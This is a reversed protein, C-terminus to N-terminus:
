TKKRKREYNKEKKIKGEIVHKLPLKKSLIHGIWNAEKMKNNKKRWFGCM